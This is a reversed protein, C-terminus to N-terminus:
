EKEVGATATEVGVALPCNASKLGGEHRRLKLPSNCDSSSSNSNKQTLFLYSKSELESELLLSLERSTGSVRHLSGTLFNTYISSKLQMSLTLIDSATDCM